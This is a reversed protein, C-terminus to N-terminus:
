LPSTLLFDKETFSCFSGLVIGDTNPKVRGEQLESVGLNGTGGM